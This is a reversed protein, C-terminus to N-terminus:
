TASSRIERISTHKPVSFTSSKTPRLQVPSFVDSFANECHKKSWPWLLHKSHDFCALTALQNIILNVSYTSAVITANDEHLLTRVLILLLDSVFCLLALVAAKKAKQRLRLVEGTLQGERLNIKYIPYIFLGLLAIQMMITVIIWLIIITFFSDISSEQILCTGAIYRYQIIVLYAICVSIYFLIYFTLVSVSFLKAFKFDIIKLSSHVYFISQRFWLYLIVLASCVSYGFIVVRSFIRCLIEVDSQPLLQSSATYGNGALILGGVTTFNGIVSAVAILICTYISLVRYKKKYFLKLFKEEFPKEVQTFFYVLAVFLYSSMLTAISCLVVDVIWIEMKFNFFTANAITSNEM